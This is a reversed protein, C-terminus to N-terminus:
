IAEQKEKSHLWVPEGLQKGVGVQVGADRLAQLQEPTDIGAAAITISLENCLKVVNRVMVKLANAIPLKVSM